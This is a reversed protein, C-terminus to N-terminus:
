VMLLFGFPGFGTEERPAKRQDYRNQDDEKEEQREKTRRKLADMEKPRAIITRTIFITQGNNSSRLLINKSSNFLNVTSPYKLLHSCLKNMSFNM